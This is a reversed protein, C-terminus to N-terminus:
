NWGGIRRRKMPRPADFAGVRLACVLLRCGWRSDENRIQRGSPARMRMAKTRPRAAARARPVPQEIELLESDIESEILLGESLMELEEL